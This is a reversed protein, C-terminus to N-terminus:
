RKKPSLSTSFKHGGIEEYEPQQSIVKAGAAVGAVAPLTNMLKVFKRPDSHLLLQEIYEDGSSVAKQLLKTYHGMTFTEDPTMKLAARGEMLKANTETLRKIYEKSKDKLKMKAYDFTEEIDKRFKELNGNTMFPHTNEHASVMFPNNTSSSVYPTNTIPDYLGSPNEFSSNTNIANIEERSAIKTPNVQMNKIEEYKMPVSAKAAARAEDIEKRNLSTKGLAKQYALVYEHTKNDVYNKLQQANLEKAPRANYRAEAAPHKYWNRSFKEGAAVEEGFSGSTVGSTIRSYPNLPTDVVKAAKALKAVKGAKLIPVAMSAIDFEVPVYEATGPQPVFNPDPEGIRPVAPYEDRNRAFEIFSSPTRLPGGTQMMRGSGSLKKITGDTYISDSFIHNGVAVEGQEVLAVSPAGTNASPNANADVPTGKNPNENHKDGVNYVHISKQNFSPNGVPGGYKAVLPKTVLSPNDLQNARVANNITNTRNLDKREQELHKNEFSKLVGGAVPALIDLAGQKWNGQSIEGIGESLTGIYDFAKGFGMAFPDTPSNDAIASGVPGTVQNVISAVQGVVPVFPLVTEVVGEVANGVSNADNWDTRAINGAQGILGSVFGLTNFVGSSGGDLSPSAPSTASQQIPQLGSLSPTYTSSLPKPTMILGGDTMMPLNEYPNVKKIKRKTKNKM